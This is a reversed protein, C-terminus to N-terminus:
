GSGNKPTSFSVPYLDLLEYLVTNEQRPGHVIFHFSDVGLRCHWDLWARLIDGDGNIHCLLKM